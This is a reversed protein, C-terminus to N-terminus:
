KKIRRKKLPKNKGVFKKTEELYPLIDKLTIYLGRYYLTRIGVFLRQFSATTVVILAFVSVSLGLLKIRKEFYYFFGILLLQEAFFLLLFLGMIFNEHKCIFNKILDCLGDLYIIFNEFKVLVILLLLVDLLFITGILFYNNLM